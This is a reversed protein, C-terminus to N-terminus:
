LPKMKALIEANIVSYIGLFTAERVGSEGGGIREESIAALALFYKPHSHDKFGRPEGM